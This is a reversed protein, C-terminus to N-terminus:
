DAVRLPTVTLLSDAIVQNISFPIIFGYLNKHGFITNNAKTSSM